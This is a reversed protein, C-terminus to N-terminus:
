VKGIYLSAEGDSCLERRTAVMQNNRLGEFKCLIEHNDSDLSFAPRVTLKVPKSTDESGALQLNIVVQQGSSEVGVIRPQKLTM